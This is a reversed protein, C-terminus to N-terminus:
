IIKRTVGFGFGIVALYYNLSVFLPLKYTPDILTHFLASLNKKDHLGKQHSGMQKCKEPTSFHNEIGQGM